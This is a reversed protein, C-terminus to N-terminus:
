GVPAIATAVLTDTQDIRDLMAEYGRHLEPDDLDAWAKHGGPRGHRLWYLHNALPYRQQGRVAVERFGAAEIFAALSERTHLILHESWLTFRRFAACDYTELLVDRAHPVEVLLVAGEALHSRLQGLFGVPDLLHEFVHFLTAVEFREDAGLEALSALVRHGRGAAAVRLRRNPEIGTSNAAIPGLADMIAAPGTGVDLWRRGRIVDGHLTARTRADDLIAPALVEGNASVENGYVENEYHAVSMHDSRSLVIVGSRPCRLVAVDDRDRVRPYYPQLEERRTLDLRELTDLLVNTM